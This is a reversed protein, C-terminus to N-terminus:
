KFLKVFRKYTDWVYSASTRLRPEYSNVFEEKTICTGFRILLAVEEMTIATILEDDQNISTVGCQIIKIFGDTDGSNLFDLAKEMKDRNM